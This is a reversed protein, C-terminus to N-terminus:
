HPLFYMGYKSMVIMVQFTFIIAGLLAAYPIVGRRNFVNLTAYNTNRGSAAKEATLWASTKEGKRFGDTM